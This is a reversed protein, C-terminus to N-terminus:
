ASELKAAREAKEKLFRARTKERAAKADWAEGRAPFVAAAVRPVAAPTMVMGAVPFAVTRKSVPETAIVTRPQPMPPLLRESPSSELLEWDDEVIAASDGPDREMEEATEMEAEEDPPPDEMEWIFFRDTDPHELSGPTSSTSLFKDVAGPPIKPRGRLKKGHRLRHQGVGQARPQPVPAGKEILVHELAARGSNAWARPQGFDPVPRAKIVMEDAGYTRPPYRVPM